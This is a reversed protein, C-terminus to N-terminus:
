QGKYILFSTAKLALILDEYTPKQTKPKPKPLYM